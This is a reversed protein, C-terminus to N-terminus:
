CFHIRSGETFLHSALYGRSGKGGCPCFSCPSLVAQNPDLRPLRAAQSKEPVPFANQIPPSSTRALVMKTLSFLLCPWFHGVTAQKANAAKTGSGRPGLCSPLHCISGELMCEKSGKTVAQVNLCFRVWHAQCQGGHRQGGGDGEEQGRQKQREWWSFLFFPDGSLRLIFEEFYGKCQTLISKVM